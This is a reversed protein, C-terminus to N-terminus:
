ERERANRGCVLRQAGLHAGKQGLGDLVQRGM